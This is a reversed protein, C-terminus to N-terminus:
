QLLLKRCEEQLAKERRGSLLKESYYFYPECGYTGIFGSLRSNATIESVFLVMEQGDGFAEEVFDFAKKLKKTMKDALSELLKPEQAFLCRIKEIGEMADTIHEERVALYYEEITKVAYEQLKREKSSILEAQVKIRISNKQSHLFEEAASIRDKGSLFNKLYSLMSYLAHIEQNKQEYEAAECNLAAVLLNVVTFREEFSGRAAMATKEKFIHKDTEGPLIGSIGYDSGYKKYLQYYAAFDRATDEKQLFQVVLSETIEVGLYEYSKLLESLDEWGRATVFNNGEPTDEVCYFRDKKISLYSIVAGHVEQKWGYDM